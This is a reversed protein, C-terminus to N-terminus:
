SCEFFPNSWLIKRGSEIRSILKMPIEYRDNNYDSYNEKLFREVNNRISRTVIPFTSIKKHVVTNFKIIDKVPYSVMMEKSNVEIIIRVNKCHSIAGFINKCEREWCSTSEFEHIKQRILYQRIVFDKGKLESFPVNNQARDLRDLAEVMIKAWTTPNALFEILTSNDFEKIYDAVENFAANKEKEFVYQLVATRYVTDEGVFIIDEGVFDDVDKSNFKINEGLYNWLTQIMDITVFHASKREKGLCFLFNYTENYFDKHDVIYAMFDLKNGELFKNGALSIPFRGYSQGYLAEVYHEGSKLPVRVFRYYESYNTYYVNGELVFDTPNSFYSMLVDNDIVNAFM